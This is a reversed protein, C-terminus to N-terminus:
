EPPHSAAQDVRLCSILHLASEARRGGFSTVTTIAASSMSSLISHIPFAPKAKSQLRLRSILGFKTIAGGGLDQQPGLQLSVLTAKPVRRASNRLAQAGGPKAQPCIVAPGTIAQLPTASGDAATKFPLPNWPAAAPSKRALGVATFPESASAAVFAFTLSDGVRGQVDRYVYQRDNNSTTDLQTSQIELVDPLDVPDYIKLRSSFAIGIRPGLDVPAKAAGRQTWGLTYTWISCPVGDIARLSQQGALSLIYDVAMLAGM